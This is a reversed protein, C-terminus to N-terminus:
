LRNDNKKLKLIPPSSKFYKSFQPPINSIKLIKKYGILMIDEKLDRIRSEEEIILNQLLDQMSMSEKKHKLNKCHDKWSPPLQVIMMSVHFDEDFNCGQALFHNIIIQLDYVQYLAPKGDFMKFNFFESVLYKRNGVDESHYKQM